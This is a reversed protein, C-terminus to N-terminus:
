EVELIARSVGEVERSFGSMKFVIFWKSVRM